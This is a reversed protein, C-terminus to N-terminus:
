PKKAVGTGPVLYRFACLSSQRVVNLAGGLSLRREDSASGRAAAQTQSATVRIVGAVRNPRAAKHSTLLLPDSKFGDNSIQFNQSDDAAIKAPM